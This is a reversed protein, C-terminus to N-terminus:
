RGTTRSIVFGTRKLALALADAMSAKTTVASLDV